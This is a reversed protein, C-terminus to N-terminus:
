GALFKEGDGRGGGVMEFYGGDRVVGGSNIMEVAPARIGQRARRHTVQVEVVAAM